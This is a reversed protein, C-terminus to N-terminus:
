GDSGGKWLADLLRELEALTMGARGALAVLERGISEIADLQERSLSRLGASETVFTGLGRELRLLGDRQLERYVRAVTNPNVGVKEALGRVTPLSQGPSLEGRRIGLRIGEELQLYIPVRSARDVQVM